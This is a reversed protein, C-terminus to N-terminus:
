VLRWLLIDLCCTSNNEGNKINLCCNKVIQYDKSSFHGFDYVKFESKRLYQEQFLDINLQKYSWISINSKFSKKVTKYSLKMKSNLVTNNDLFWIECGTVAKAQKQWM